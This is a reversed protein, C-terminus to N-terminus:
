VVCIVASPEAELVSPGYMPNWMFTMLLKLHKLTEFFTGYYLFLILYM